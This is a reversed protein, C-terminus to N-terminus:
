QDRMFATALQVLSRSEPDYQPFGMKALGYDPDRAFNILISQLFSAAEDQAPTNPIGYKDATNFLTPLIASHWTGLWSFPDLNPFVGFYRYRWVPLGAQARAATANAAPCNFVGNTVANIAEESPKNTESVAPGLENAALSAGERDSNGILIPVRAVRGAALRAVHDDFVNQGDATPAFTLSRGGNQTENYQNVIDMIDKWPQTQMCAFEQGVDLPCGLKQAIFTFNSPAPRPAGFSGVVGSIPVVASVIPDETYAYTYSDVSGGGASEGFLLMRNPDGGFADINDRVWEIALRQDMYGPNFQQGNLGAASPFGFVNLRYNLSVSIVDLNDQVLRGGDYYPFSNGGANHGGGHIFILVPKLEEEHATGRPAWINLHLCDEGTPVDDPKGFGKFYISYINKVTNTIQPCVPGWSSADIPASARAKKVPPRFRLTGTPTEAYPIGRFVRVSDTEESVVGQVIGSTTEVILDSINGITPWAAVTTAGIAAAVFISYKM